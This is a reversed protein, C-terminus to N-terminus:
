DFHITSTIPNRYFIEYFINITIVNDIPMNAVLLTRAVNVVQNWIYTATHFHTHGIEYVTWQDSTQAIRM